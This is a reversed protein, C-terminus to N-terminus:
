VSNITLVSVTLLLVTHRDQVIHLWLPQLLGQDQFSPRGKGVVSIWTAAAAAKQPGLLDLDATPM